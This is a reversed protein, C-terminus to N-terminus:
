VLLARPFILNLQTVFVIYVFAEMAVTVLLMKWWVRYRLLWMFVMMFVFTSVFFGIYIIGLAYALIVAFALVPFKMREWSFPYDETEANEGAALKKRQEGMKRFGGIMIFVSLFAMLGACICPFRTTEAPLDRSELFFLLAAAIFFISMVIDPHLSVRKKM